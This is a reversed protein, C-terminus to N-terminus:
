GCNMLRRKNVNSSFEATPIIVPAEGSVTVDTASQPGGVILGDRLRGVGGSGKGPTPAFGQRKDDGYLDPSCTVIRYRSM